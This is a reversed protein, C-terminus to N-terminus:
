RVKENHKRRQRAIFLGAGVVFLWSAGVVPGAHMSCSSDSQLQTSSGPNTGADGNGTDNKPGGDKPSPGSDATGSDVLECTSCDFSADPKMCTKPVCVGPQDFTVGANDCPSGAAKGACDGPPIADASAATTFSFAALLTASSLLCSFKTRNVPFSRESPFGDFIPDSIRNAPM